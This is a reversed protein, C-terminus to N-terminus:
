AVKRKKPLKPKATETFVDQRGTWQALLTEYRRAVAPYDHYTRVFASVRAAEAEYFDRDLVLREIAETLAAADNAYTYPVHGCFARHAEATVPDGAVVPLGMAAGELGSGQMGLWFSDFVADCTAKARLADGHSMGMITVSEVELGKAKLTAIVDDYVDSGKFRRNTPSHAIRFPGPARKAPVLQRYREVDVAIPLWEPVIAVRKEHAVSKIEDVLSLRAAVVRADRMADWELVSMGTNPFRDGCLPRGDPRSGHYHMVLVQEPKRQIGSNNTLFYGIHNHLVDATMVVGRVAGAQTEGDLQRLSSYPNTDGWRVFASAHKSCKNLASHHRYAAQGPDFGAGQAIRLAGPLEVRTLPEEEGFPSLVRGNASWWDFHESGVIHVIERSAAYEAAQRSCYYQQGPWYKARTDPQGPVPPGVKHPALAVVLVDDPASPVAGPTGPAMDMMALEGAETLKSM